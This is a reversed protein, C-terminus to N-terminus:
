VRLDDFGRWPTPRECKLAAARHHTSATRGATCRAEVGSRVKEKARGADSTHCVRLVEGGYKCFYLLPTPGQAHLTLLVWTL